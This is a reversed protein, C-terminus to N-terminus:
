QGTRSRFRGDRVGATREAIGPWQRIRGSRSESLCSLRFGATSGPVTPHLGCALHCPFPWWRRDDTAPKAESRAAAMTSLPVPEPIPKTPIPNQPNEASPANPSRQPLPKPATPPVSRYRGSGSGPTAPPVPAPFSRSEPSHRHGSVDSPADTASNSENRQQPPTSWGGYPATNGYHRSNQTDAHPPYSPSPPTPRLWEPSTQCNGDRCSSAVTRDASPCPPLPPFRTWCTPHYGWAPDCAPSRVPHDPRSDMLGAVGTHCLVFTISGAAVSRRLQTLFPRLM